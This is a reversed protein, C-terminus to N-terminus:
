GLLQYIGCDGTTKNNITIQLPSSQRLIRMAKTNKVNMEMGYCRGIEILRDTTGKLIIEEETLLVVHDEYYLTFYLASIFRLICLRQSPSIPVM